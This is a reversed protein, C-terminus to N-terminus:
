PNALLISFFIVVIKDEAKSVTIRLMEKDRNFKLISQSASENIQWGLQPLIDKYYAFLESKELSGIAEVNAVRGEDSDFYFCSGNNEYLKEILPVDDICDLFDQSVSENKIFFSYLLVFFIYFPLLFSVKVIQAISLLDAM